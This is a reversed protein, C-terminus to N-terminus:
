RFHDLMECLRILEHGLLGYPLEETLDAATEFMHMGLSDHVATPVLMKGARASSRLMEKVISILGAFIKTLASPM